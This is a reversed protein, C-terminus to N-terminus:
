PRTTCSGLSRRAVTSPCSGWGRCFTPWGRDRNQLNIMWRIGNMADRIRPLDQPEFSLQRISDLALIAAPTDDCDPVAGTLDSWGWGGPDAGTFPHCIINQCSLLWDTVGLDATDTQHQHLANVALSTNWTALNTDIPWSGDSRVTEVLFRVANKSVPHKARGTSILSM